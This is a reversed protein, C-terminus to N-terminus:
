SIQEYSLGELTKNLINKLYLPMDTASCNTETCFNEIVEQRPLKEKPEEIVQISEKVEVKKTKAVVPQPNNNLCTRLYGAPNTTGKPVKAFLERLFDIDYIRLSNIFKQDLLLNRDFALMKIVSPKTKFKNELDSDSIKQNSKPLNIYSSNYKAIEGDTGNAIEGDTNKKYSEKHFKPHPNRENFYYIIEGKTEYFTKFLNKVNEKDELYKKYHKETYLRRELVVFGEKIELVYLYELKILESIAKSINSPHKDAKEGISENKAFCYGTEDSTLKDIIAYTFFLKSSLEKAATWFNNM